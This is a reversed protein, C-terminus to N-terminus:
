SERRRLRRAREKRGQHPWYKSSGQLVRAAKKAHKVVWDQELKTLMDTQHAVAKEDTVAAAGAVAFEAAV